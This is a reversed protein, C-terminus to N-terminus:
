GCGAWRRRRGSASPRTVMGRRIPTSTRCTSGTETGPARVRSPRRATARWLGTAGGQGSDGLALFVFIDAGRGGVLVDEGGRGALRDAGAGGRLLNAGDDGRLVDAGSGGAVNEISVLRDRLGRAGGSRAVGAALDVSGDSFVGTYDATDVGHGGNLLNAGTGGCLVDDGAGGLLADAGADGRLTDAGDLGRLEDAGRGGSLLNAARNGSMLDDGSGGTANEILSRPDGRHLIANFM